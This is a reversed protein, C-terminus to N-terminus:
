AWVARSSAPARCTTLSKSRDSSPGRSIPRRRRVIRMCTDQLQAPVRPSVASGVRRRATATFRLRGSREAGGHGRSYVGVSLTGDDAPRVLCFQGHQTRPGCQLQASESRAHWLMTSPRHGPDMSRGFRHRLVNMDLQASVRLGTSSQAEIRWREGPWPTSCGVLAARVARPIGRTQAAGLRPLAGSAVLLVLGRAALGLSVRRRPRPRPMFNAHTVEDPRVLAGDSGLSGSAKSRRVAVPM